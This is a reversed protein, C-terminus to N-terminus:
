SVAVICSALGASLRNSAKSLLRDPHYYRGDNRGHKTHVLVPVGALAAAVSGLHLPFPNHTHLVDPPPTRLRRALRLTGTLRGRGSWDLREVPVNVAEFRPGLVGVAGLSLVRLDFRDRNRRRALDLVVMELGGIDLVSVLHLVQIRRPHEPM